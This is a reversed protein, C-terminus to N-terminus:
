SPPQSICTATATGTGSSNPAAALVLSLQTFVDPAQFTFGSAKRLFLCNQKTIGIRPSHLNCNVGMHLAEAEPVGAESSSSRMTNDSFTFVHGVCIVHLINITLRPFPNKAAKEKTSLM